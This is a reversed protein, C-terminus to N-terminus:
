AGPVEVRWSIPSFSGWVKYSPFLVGSQAITMSVYACSAPYERAAKRWLLLSFLAAEAVVTLLWLLETFRGVDQM